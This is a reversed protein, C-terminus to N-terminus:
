ELKFKIPLIYAVRVLKGKNKGPKWKPMAKIVRKAEDNIDSLESKVLKVTQAYTTPNIQVITDIAVIPVGRKVEVNSISGDKEVVFGVYVTGETKNKVTM